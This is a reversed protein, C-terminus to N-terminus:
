YKLRCRMSTNRLVLIVKSRSKSRLKTEITVRLVRKSDMRSEPWGPRLSASINWDDLPTGKLNLKFTNSACCPGAEPNWAQLEDPYIVDQLWDRKPIMVAM